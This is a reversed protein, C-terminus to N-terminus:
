RNYLNMAKETENKVIFGIADLISDFKENLLKKDETSFRGLVWNALDYDPHPKEGVGIKIRPFEQGINNIISKIGNHGGASGKTRIRMKGVALSIDDYIILVNKPPIKYFQAAQAVANGSLNMFTQPKLVLIKKGNENWIGYLSSFKAKDIKFNAKQALYDVAAFGVNHRTNDYKEGPNGLGVIIFDVGQTTKKAFMKILYLLFAKIQTFEKFQKPM